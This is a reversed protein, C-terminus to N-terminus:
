ILTKLLLIRMLYHYMIECTTKNNNDATTYVYMQLTTIIPMKGINIWSAGMLMPQSEKIHKDTFSIEFWCCYRIDSDHAMVLVLVVVVVVVVM